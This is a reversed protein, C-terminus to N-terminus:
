ISVIKSPEGFYAENLGEKNPVPIVNFMEKPSFKLKVFTNAIDNPAIFQLACSKITSSTEPPM